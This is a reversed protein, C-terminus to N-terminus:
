QFISSEIRRKVEIIRERQLVSATGHLEALMAKLTMFDERARWMSGASNGLDKATVVTITPDYSREITPSSKVQVARRVLKGRHIRYFNADTHLDKIPELTDEYLTAPLVFKYREQGRNGIMLLSLEQLEGRIAAWYGYVEPHQYADYPSIAQFADLLPAAIDGLAGYTGDLSVEGSAVAVPDIMHEAFVATRKVKAITDERGSNVAEAMAAQLIQTVHQLVREKNHLQGARTMEQANSILYHANTLHLTAEDENKYAFGLHERYGDHIESSM